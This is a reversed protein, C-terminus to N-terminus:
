RGVVSGLLVVVEVGAVGVVQEAIKDVREADGGVAGAGGGEGGGGEGGRGVVDVGDCGEGVGGREGRAVVGPQEEDGEGDEHGDGELVQGVHLSVGGFAPERLRQYRALTHCPHTTRDAHNSGAPRAAREPADARNPPDPHHAHAPHNRPPRQPQPLHHSIRPRPLHPAHPHPHQGTQRHPLPQLPHHSSPFPSTSQPQSRYHPLNTPYAEPTPLCPIIM